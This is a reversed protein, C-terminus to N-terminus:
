TQNRVHLYYFISLEVFEKAYKPECINKCDRVISAIHSDFKVVPKKNNKTRDIPQKKKIYYDFYLSKIFRLYADNYDHKRYMESFFLVSNSIIYKMPKNIEKSKSVVDLYIQESMSCLIRDCM